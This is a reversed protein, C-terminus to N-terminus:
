SFIWKSSLENIIVPVVVTLIFAALVLLLNRVWKKMKEEQVDHFDRYIGDTRDHCTRLRQCWKWLIGLTAASRVAFASLFVPRYM